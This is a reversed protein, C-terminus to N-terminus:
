ITNTGGLVWRKEPMIGPDKVPSRQWLNGNPPHEKGRLKGAFGIVKVSYSKKKGAGEKRKLSLRRQESPTSTM